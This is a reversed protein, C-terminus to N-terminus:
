NNEHKLSKVMIDVPEIKIWSISNQHVINDTKRINLLTFKSNNIKEKLIEKENCFDLLSEPIKNKQINEILMTLMSYAPWFCPASDIFINCYKNSKPIIWSLLQLLALPEKYFDLFIFDINKKFNVTNLDVKENRFEIFDNIKFKNIKEKIFNNYEGKKKTEHWQSGDDITLVKGKNNEQFAKAVMFSTCGLGTGFEIFNNPKKMKILSYMFLGTNTTDYGPGEEKLYKLLEIFSKDV